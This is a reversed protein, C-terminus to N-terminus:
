CRQWQQSSAWARERLRRRDVPPTERALLLGLNDLQVKGRRLLAAVAVRETAHGDVRAGAAWAAVMALRAAVTPVGVRCGWAPAVEARFRVREVVGGARDVLRRAARLARAALGVHLKLVEVLADLM